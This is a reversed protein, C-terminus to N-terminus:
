GEQLLGCGTPRVNCVAVLIGQTGGPPNNEFKLEVSPDQSRSRSAAMLFAPFASFCMLAIIKTTLICFLKYNRVNEM